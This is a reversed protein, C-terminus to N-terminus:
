PRFGDPNDRIDERFKAIGASIVIVASILLVAAGFAIGLSLFVAAGITGYDTLALINVAAALLFSPLQTCLLFIGLNIKLKGCIKKRLLNLLPSLVAAAIVAAVAALAFTIDYFSCLSFIGACFAIDFM